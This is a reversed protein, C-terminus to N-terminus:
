KGPKEEDLDFVITLESCYADDSESYGPGGATGPEGEETGVPSVRSAWHTFGGQHREECRFDVRESVELVRFRTPDTLIESYHVFIDGDVEEAEIMGM